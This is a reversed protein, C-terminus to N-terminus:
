ISLSVLLVSVLILAGGVWQRPTMTEKFRVRSYYLMGIIEAQGVTKVLAPNVLAFGTFWGISGLASLVGVQLSLKPQTTFSVNWRRAKVMQLSCLLLSQLILVFLLTAGASTVIPGTLSHSALSACVSTIAFCFGSALGWRLSPDRYASFLQRFRVSMTLSGLVGLAIGLWAQLSLSHHLLPISLLAAQIAETKALLTGLAFGGSSFARLMFYTALIQALACCSAAIFFALNFHQVGGFFWWCCCMYGAVVPLGFLSRALTAHLFGASKALSNQYATRASQCTAAFLTM